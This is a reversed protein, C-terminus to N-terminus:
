VFVSLSSVYFKSVGLTPEQEEEVEEDEDDAM